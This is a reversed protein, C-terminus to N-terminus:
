SRAPPRSKMAQDIAVLYALPDGSSKVVYAFQRTAAAVEAKSAKGMVPVIMAGAADAKVREAVAAADGYEVLILDFKGAKLDQELRAADDVAEIKHGAQKLTSQLEPNALGSKGRNGGLFILVSAPRAAV